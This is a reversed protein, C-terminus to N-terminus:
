LTRQITPAESRFETRATKNDHQENIPDILWDSRQTQKSSTNYWTFLIAGVDSM